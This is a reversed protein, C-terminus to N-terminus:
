RAIAEVVAAFIRGRVTQEWREGDFAPVHGPHDMVTKAQSAWLVRERDTLDAWAASREEPELRSDSWATVAAWATRAVEWALDPLSGGAKDDGDHDLASLDAPRDDHGAGGTLSAADTLAAEDPTPASAPSAAKRGAGKGKNTGM